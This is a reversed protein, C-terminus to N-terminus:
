LVLRLPGSPPLTHRQEHELKQQQTQERQLRRGSRQWRRESNIQAVVLAVYRDCGPSAGVFQRHRHTAVWIKTGNQHLALVQPIGFNSHAGELAATM